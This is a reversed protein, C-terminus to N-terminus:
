KLGTIYNWDVGPDTAGENILANVQDQIKHILNFQDAGMKSTIFKNWDVVNTAPDKSNFNGNFAQDVQTPAIQEDISLASIVFMDTATCKNRACVNLRLALRTRMAVNAVEFNDQDMSCGSACSGSRLGLGTKRVKESGPYKLETGYPTQMEIDSVQAPGISDYAGKNWPWHDRIWRNELSGFGTGHYNIGASVYLASSSNCTM